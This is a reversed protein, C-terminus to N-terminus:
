FLHVKRHYELTSIKEEPVLEQRTGKLEVIAIFMRESRWVNKQKREECNDTCVLINFHFGSHDETRGKRAKM